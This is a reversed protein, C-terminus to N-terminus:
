KEKKGIKKDILYPIDRKKINRGRIVSKNYSLYMEYIDFFTECRNVMKLMETERESYLAIDDMFVTFPTNVRYNRHRIEYSNSEEAIWRLMSDIFLIFLLFSLLCRQKLSRQINISRSIFSNFM